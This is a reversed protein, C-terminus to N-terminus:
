KECEALRQRYVKRAHEYAAEAEKMEADAYTKQKQKWCQEVWGSVM